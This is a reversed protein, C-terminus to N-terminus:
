LPAPTSAALDEAPHLDFEALATAHRLDEGRSPAEHAPHPAGEEGGHAAEGSPSADHGAGHDYDAPAHALADQEHGAGAALQVLAEILEAHPDSGAEEGHTNGGANAAGMLEDQDARDHPDHADDGGTEAPHGSHSATEHPLAEEEHQEANSSLTELGAASSVGHADIADGHDADPHDQGDQAALATFDDDVHLDALSDIAAERLRDGAAGGDLKFVALDHAAADAAIQNMKDIAARHREEAQAMAARLDEDDIDLLDFGLM